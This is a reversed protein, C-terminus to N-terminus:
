VGQSLEELLRQAATVDTPSLGGTKTNLELAKKCSEVAENKRGLGALARGLHFYSATAAPVGAPYLEISRRFDQIAKNFEGLRYYIVGRTDILDVFDPAKDLGRMALQLAKQYKGREECLIWALNNIAVINDPQLTLIQQYLAASEASRGTVQLLMALVGMAETCDSNDELIRRLIDEAAKKAQDDATAILNAAITVTTGTDKPHSDCWDIVRQNLQIWLKDDKLLRIQALLTRPDNPESQYLSDFVKQADATNGNKYLAFALATKCRRQDSADCVSIQERMLSIAKESAGTAIYTRALLV